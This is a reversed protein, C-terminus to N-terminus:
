RGPKWRCNRLWLSYDLVYHDPPDRLKAADEAAVAVAFSMETSPKDANSDAFVFLTCDYTGASLDHPERSAFIIIKSVASRPAIAYGMAFEERQSPVVECQNRMDFWWETNRDKQRVRLVLMDVTHVAAGDNTISVPFGLLLRPAGRHEQQFVFSNPLAIALRGKRLHTYYFGGASVIASVISIVLALIAM